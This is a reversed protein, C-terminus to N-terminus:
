LIIIRMNTAHSGYAYRLPLLSVQLNSLDWYQNGDTDPSHISERINNTKVM